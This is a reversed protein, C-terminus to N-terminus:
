VHVPEKEKTTVTIPPVIEAPKHELLKSLEVGSSAPTIKDGNPTADMDFHHENDYQILEQLALATIFNTKCLRKLGAAKAKEFFWDKWIFDQKAAKRIQDIESKPLTAIKSHRGAETTYSLCTIMGVMKSQDTQFPNMRIHTYTQFGGKDSLTLEDNEFVPEATFDVDKFYEAIKFVFGKYGPQFQACDNYKVLYALKRGDIPLRFKAADIIAQIISDVTCFTLDKALKKSESEGSRTETKKIEQLVSSIYKFAENKGEESKGDYGLALSLRATNAKARLQNEIWEYNTMQPPEPKQSQQSEEPKTGARSSDEKKEDKEVSQEREPINEVPAAAAPQTSLLEELDDTRAAQANFAAVEEPTYEVRKSANEAGKVRKVQM